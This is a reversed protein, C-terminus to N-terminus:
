DIIDLVEKIKPLAEEACKEGYEISKLAEESSFKYINVGPQDIKIYVDGKDEKLAAYNASLLCVSTILVDVTTKLKNQIAYYSGVDVTIVKDAGLRRADEVPINDSIGGDVLCMNDIKIPKFIGPVSISARIADVLSGKEFVYKNGSNLDTAVACFPKECEEIKKDGIIKTLYKTVKKGYLLGSDTLFFPNLDVINKRSFTKIINEMEKIPVGACFTGGILSGMSTGAIIDISINNKLLVKIVGIHAFGYAAGGSLVLGIKQSKKM